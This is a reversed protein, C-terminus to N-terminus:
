TSEVIGDFLKRQHEPQVTASRNPSPTDRFSMLIPLPNPGITRTTRTPMATVVRNMWEQQWNEVVKIKEEYNNDKAGSHRQEEEKEEKNPLPQNCSNIM